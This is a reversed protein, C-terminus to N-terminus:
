CIPLSYAMYEAKTFSRFILAAEPIRIAATIPNRKRKRFTGFFYIQMRQANTARRSTQGTM